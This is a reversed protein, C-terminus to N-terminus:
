ELLLSQEEQCVSAKNFLFLMSGWSVQSLTKVQWCLSTANATENGNIDLWEEQIQIYKHISVTPAVVFQAKEKKEWISKLHLCFTAKWITQMDDGELNFILINRHVNAGGQNNIKM